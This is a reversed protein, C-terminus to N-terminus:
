FRGSKTLKAGAPLLIRTAKPTFGGAYKIVLIHGFRRHPCYAMGTLNLDPHVIIKRHKRSTNGDDIFLSYIYDSGRRNGFGINEAAYGSYTGYVEMRDWPFSGNSGKHSFLGRSGIDRCHDRAAAALSDSWKLAKLPAQSEMARIAEDWVSIGEVTTLTHGSPLNLTKRDNKFRQIQEKITFKATEPSTRILNQM